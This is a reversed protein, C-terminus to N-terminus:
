SRLMTGQMPSAMSLMACIASSIILLSLDFAFKDNSIEKQFVALAALSNISM